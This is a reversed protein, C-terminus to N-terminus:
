KTREDESFCSVTGDPELTTVCTVPETQAAAESPDRVYYLDVTATVAGDELQEPGKHTLARMEKGYRRRGWAEAARLMRTVLDGETM